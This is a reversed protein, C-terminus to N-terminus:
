WPERMRRGTAIGAAKIAESMEYARRLAADEATVPENDGFNDVHPATPPCPALARAPPTEVAPLRSKPRDQVGVASDAMGTKWREWAEELRARRHLDELEGRDIRGEQRALTHYVQEAVEDALSGVERARIFESELALVDGKSLHIGHADAQELAEIALAMADNMDFAASGAPPPPEPPLRSPPPQRTSEIMPAPEDPWIPQGAHFQERRKDLDAMEQRAARERQRKAARAQREIRRLVREVRETEIQDATRNKGGAKRGMTLPLGAARRAALWAARGAKQKAQGEATVAGTSQGGHWQCRGADPLAPRTCFGNHRLRAKVAADPDKGQRVARARVRDMAADSRDIHAGCLKCDPARTM